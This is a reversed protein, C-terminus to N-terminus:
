KWTWGTSNKIGYLPNSLSYSFVQIACYSVETNCMGIVSFTSGKTLELTISFSHKKKKIGNNIFWEVTSKINTNTSTTDVFNYAKFGDLDSNLVSFEARQFSPKYM